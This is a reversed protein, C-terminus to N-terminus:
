GIVAPEFCLWWPIAKRILVCLEPDPEDSFTGGSNNKLGLHAFFISLGESFHCQTALFFRM